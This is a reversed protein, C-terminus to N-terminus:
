SYQRHNKLLTTTIHAKQCSVLNPFDQHHETERQGRPHDKQHMEWLDFAPFWSDPESPLRKAVRGGNRRESTNAALNM